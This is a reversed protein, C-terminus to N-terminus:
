RRTLDLNSCSHSSGRPLQASCVHGERLPNIEVRVVVDDDHLLMTNKVAGQELGRDILRLGHYKGEADFRM